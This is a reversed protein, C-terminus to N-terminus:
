PMSAVSPDMRRASAPPMAIMLETWVAHCALCAVVGGTWFALAGWVAGGVVAGAIIALNASPVNAALYALWALFGKLKFRRVQAIARSRGITAMQGKDIFHFKERPQGRVDRLINAAIARGEQMAVPALGPLPQGTQHAFHALDGAVFVNAHGPVSLDPEVIM